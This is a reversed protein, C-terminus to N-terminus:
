DPQHILVELNPYGGVKWSIRVRFQLLGTDDSYPAEENVSPDDESAEDPSFEAFPINIDHGHPYPDLVDMIDTIILWGTVEKREAEQPVEEIANPM